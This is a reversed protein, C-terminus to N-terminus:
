STKRGFLTDIVAPLYTFAVWSFFWVGLVMVFFAYIINANNVIAVNVDTVDNFNYYLHYLISTQKTKFNYLPIEIDIIPLDPSDQTELLPSLDINVFPMVYALPAKQMLVQFLLDRQEMTIEYPSKIILQGLATQSLNTFLQFFKTMVGEYWKKINIIWNNIHCIVDLADCSETVVATNGCGLTSGDIMHLSVLVDTPKTHNTGFLPMGFWSHTGYTYYVSTDGTVWWDDIHQEVAYDSIPTYSYSNGGLGGAEWGDYLDSPFAVNQQVTMYNWGLGVDYDLLLNSKEDADFSPPQAVSFFYSYDGATANDTVLTYTCWSASATSEPQTFPTPTPTSTPTPTPDPADEHMSINTFGMSHNNTVIKYAYYATTNEFVVEQPTSTQPLGDADNYLLTWGDLTDWTESNSAYISFEEPNGWWWPNSYITLIMKTITKPETFRYGVVPNAYCCQWRYAPTSWDAVPSDEAEDFALWPATHTENNTGYGFATGSPATASTMVPVLDATYETAFVPTALGGFSLLFISITFFLKKM